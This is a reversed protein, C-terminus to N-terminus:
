KTLLMKRMQQFEATRITYIYLGTSLSSADFNIAYSGAPKFENVLVAVEQGLLNYITIKVNTAKPLEYQIMTTPNFPNPYNQHLAYKSPIGSNGNNADIAVDTILASQASNKIFSGENWRLSDLAVTTTFSQTPDNITFKLSLLHAENAVPLSDAGAFRITGSDHHIQPSFGEFAGLWTVSQYTLFTTDYSVIGQFGYVNNVSDLKIIVEVTTQGSGTAVDSMNIAGTAAEVNSHPLTDISGAVRQLIASADWASVTTDPSVNANALQLNDLPMSGVLYKLIASADDKEVLGNLDVDGAQTSRSGGILHINKTGGNSVIQLTAFKQGGSIPAFTVPLGLSDRPALSFSTTDVSFNDSDTGLITLSTVELTSDTETANKVTLQLTTSDGLQVDVFLLSDPNVSLVAGPNLDFIRVDDISWGDGEVQAGNSTL